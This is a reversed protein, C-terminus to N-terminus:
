SRKQGSLAILLGTMAIASGAAALGTWHYGEFLTSLAMAVVPVLVGIYAARGAGMTRVLSYYLPFTLVSGFLALYAVGAWYRPPADFSPLGELALALAADALAGLAMAWAIVPVIPYRRAAEGAQLVNAASASLMGGLSLVVGLMVSGTSPALRYENVLLLAIGALAVVSGALFRPEIRTGLLLRSFLANPVMLLAYSVAVIGSTLHRGAEYIFQFNSAFQFLGLALAMKMAPVPLRLSEGRLRALVAMALAALAFRFTVGWAAPVGSVQDKIVLWTSGWILAILLFAAITRGQSPAAGSV